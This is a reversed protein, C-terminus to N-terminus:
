IKPELQHRQTMQGNEGIKEPLVLWSSLRALKNELIIELAVNKRFQVIRIILFLRRSQLSEL